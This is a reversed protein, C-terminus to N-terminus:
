TNASRTAMEPSVGLFLLFIGLKKGLTMAANCQFDGFNPNSAATLMPDIGALSEGFADTFAKDFRAKLNETTSFM